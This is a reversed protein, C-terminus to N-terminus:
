FVSPEAFPTTTPITTMTVEVPLAKALGCRCFQCRPQTMQNLNGCFTCRLMKVTTPFYRSILALGWGHVALAARIDLVAKRGVNPLRLLEAETYTMLDAVTAAAGEELGLHRVRHSPGTNILLTDKTWREPPIYSQIQRLRSVINAVAAPTIGWEKGLHRLSRGADRGALIALNRETIITPLGTM